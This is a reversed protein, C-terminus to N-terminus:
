SGIRDLTVTTISNINPNYSCNSILNYTCHVELYSRRLTSSAQTLICTAPILCTKPSWMTQPKPNLAETQTSQNGGLAKSEARSQVTIGALRFRVEHCSEVVGGRYLGITTEM